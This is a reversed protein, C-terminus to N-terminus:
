DEIHGDHTLTRVKQGQKWGERKIRNGAAQKWIATIGPFFFFFLINGWQVVTWDKLM